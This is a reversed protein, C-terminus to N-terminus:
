CPWKCPTADMEGQGICVNAKYGAPWKRVSEAKPFTRRKRLWHCVSASVLHLRAGLDVVRDVRRAAIREHYILTARRMLALRLDYPRAFRTTIRRAASTCSAKAPNRSKPHSISENPDIAGRRKWCHSRLSPNSTSGPSISCRRPATIQPRYMPNGLRESEGRFGQHLHESRLVLLFWQSCTAMM